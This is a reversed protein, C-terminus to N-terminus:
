RVGKRGRIEAVATRRHPSDAFLAVVLDVLEETDFELGLEGETWLYKIDVLSSELINELYRFKLWHSTYLATMPMVEQGNSRADDAAGQAPRFLDELTAIRNCYTSLQQSEPESIDSMDEVDIIVKDIVTTLLSGLSQLLASHSLINNWEKYLQRLRDITSAVALDAEGAFPHVTCHEFGQAGDLLDTIITRQSEMEKAYARKGFSELASVHDKLKLNYAMRSPIERGSTTTHEFGLNQLREALWVSDNYLFMQGSSHRSYSISSSARYMALILGPLSLLNSAASAIPLSSLEPSELRVSDSIVQSIIALIEQPLTTINYTEKLTVERESPQVARPTGNVRSRKPTTATAHSSQATEQGEDEDGWGWADTDEGVDGLSHSGGRDVDNEKDDDLGWASVDEEDEDKAAESTTSANTPVTPSKEEDSWGANWDDGIGNGAFVEDDQSLFRTEIREVTEIDGLGRLILKRVRHLSLEQRKRLWTGPIGEIWGILDGTGPWGKTHLAKGFGKVLSLTDEFDEMADLNEPIASDLWTSILRSVLRPMLYKAMPERISSPFEICLFDMVFRLDRFLAQASLDTSRGSVLIENGDVELSQVSGDSRAQLRPLLILSEFCDCLPRLTDEFANLKILSNVLSDLDAPSAGVSLDANAM